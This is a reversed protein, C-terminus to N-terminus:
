RHSSYLTHFCLDRILLLIMHEMEDRESRSIWYTSSVDPIFQDLCTGKTILLFDDTRTVYTSASFLRYIHQTIIDFSYTVMAAVIWDTELSEDRIIRTNHQLGPGKVSCPVLVYIIPVPLLYDHKYQSHCYGTSVVFTYYFIMKHPASCPVTGYKGYLRKAINCVPRRRIEKAM